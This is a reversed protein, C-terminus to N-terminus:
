LSELKLYANNDLRIMITVVTLITENESIRVMVQIFKKDDTVTELSSM